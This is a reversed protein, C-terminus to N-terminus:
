LYAADSLREAPDDGQVVYRKLNPRALDHTKNPGIAGALGGQEIAYAAEVVRVPSIDEEIAM